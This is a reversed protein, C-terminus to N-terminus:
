REKIAESDSVFCPVYDPLCLNYVKGKTTMADLDHVVLESCDPLRGAPM